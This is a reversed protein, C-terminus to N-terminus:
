LVFMSFISFIHLRKSFLFDSLFIKLGLPPSCGGWGGKFGGISTLVHVTGISRYEVTSYPCTSSPTVYCAMKAKTLSKNIERGNVNTM